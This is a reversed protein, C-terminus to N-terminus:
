GDQKLLEIKIKQALLGQYKTTKGLRELLQQTLLKFYAVNESNM